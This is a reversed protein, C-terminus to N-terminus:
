FTEHTRWQLGSLALAPFGALEELGDFKLIRLILESEVEKAVVWPFQCSRSLDEFIVALIVLLEVPALQILGGLLDVSLPTCMEDLCVLACKSVM